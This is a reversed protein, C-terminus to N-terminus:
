PKHSNLWANGVTAIAVVFLLLSAHVFTSHGIAGMGGSSPLWLGFFNAAKWIAAIILCAIGLWYSWNALLKEM